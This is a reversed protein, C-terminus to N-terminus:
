DDKDKDKTKGAKAHTKSGREGNARLKHNSPSVVIPFATRRSSTSPCKRCALRSVEAWDGGIM